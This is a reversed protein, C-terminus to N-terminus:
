NGAELAEDAKLQRDFWFTGLPVLSCIGATIWRKWHWGKRIWALTAMGNYLIFLFGHAWGTYLVAEPKGAWYKLPMAILLLVLFSVGEALGAMRLSRILNM